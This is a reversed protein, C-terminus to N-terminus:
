VNGETPSERLRGARAPTASARGLTAAALLPGVAVTVAALLTTALGPGYSGTLDRSLAVLYPGAFAGVGFGLDLLGAVRGFSPGAFARAQFTAANVGLVGRGLGGAVVYCAVMALAAPGSALLGVIGAGLLVGGLLGLRGAGWRDIAWGGALAGLGICAGFLGGATAALQDPLGVLLLHAVQHAPLLMM